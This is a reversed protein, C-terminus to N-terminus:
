LKPVSKVLVWVALAPQILDITKLAEVSKKKHWEKLACTLHGSM